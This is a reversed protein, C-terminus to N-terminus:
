SSWKGRRRTVVAIAAAAALVLVAGAGLWGWPAGSPDEGSAAADDAATATPTAATRAPTQATPTEATPAPPPTAASETPVAVAPSTVTFAVAASVPHGDASVVRYTVRWPVPQGTPADDAAAAPVDVIVDAGQVRTPRESAPGGGVTLAVAAFQPEIEDSFTLRVQEPVAELAAGADPDSGILEGHAAAPAAWGTLMLVMGALVAVVAAAPRVSRSRGARAPLPTSLTCRSVCHGEPHPADDEAARM